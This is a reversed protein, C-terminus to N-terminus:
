LQVVQKLGFLYFMPTGAERGNTSFHLPAGDREFYHYQVKLSLIM